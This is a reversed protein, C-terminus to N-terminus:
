DLADKAAKCMSTATQRDFNWTWQAGKNIDSDEGEKAEGQIRNESVLTIVFTGRRVVGQSAGDTYSPDSRWKGTLTKDRLKTDYIEQPDERGINGHRIKGKLTDGFLGIYLSYQGSKWCGVWEQADARASSVNVSLIASVLVLITLARLAVSTNKSRNM